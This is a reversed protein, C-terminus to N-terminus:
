AWLIEGDADALTHNGLEAGVTASERANELM